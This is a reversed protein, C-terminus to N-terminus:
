FVLLTYKPKFGFQHSQDLNIRHNPKLILTLNQPLLRWLAEWLELAAHGQHLYIPCISRAIAVLQPVPLHYKLDKEWVVQAQYLGTFSISSWISSSFHIITGSSLTSLSWSAGHLASVAKVVRHWLCYACIFKDLGQVTLYFCFRSYILLAKSVLLWPNSPWPKIKCSNDGPYSGPPCASPISLSTSTSHIPAAVIHM